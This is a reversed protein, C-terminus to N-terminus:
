IGFTNAFPTHHSNSIFNREILCGRGKSSISIGVGGGHSQPITEYIVNDSIVCGSCVM